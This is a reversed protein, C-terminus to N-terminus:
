EPYGKALTLGTTWTKSSFDLNHNISVILNSFVQSPTGPVTVSGFTDYIQITANGPIEVQGTLFYRKSSGKYKNAMDELDDPSVFGPPGGSMAKSWPFYPVTDYDGTKYTYPLLPVNSIDTQAGGGVRRLGFLVIENRIDEFDPSMSMSMVKTNPYSSSWDTPSSVIPLATDEDIKYFYIKSYAGTSSTSFSGSPKIIYTLLYDECVRELVERVPTGPPFNYIPSALDETYRLKDSSTLSCDTMDKTIGVKDVIYDLAADVRYNDLYPADFLVIDDLKKELGVLNITWKGGDPGDTESVGMALGSFIVGDVTGNGGEAYITISGVSNVTAGSDGGIGQLIKADQGALGFKDVIIQGTMGEETQSINISLIYPEWNAVTAAVVDGPTSGYYASNVDGPKATGAIWGLKFNGNLNYPDDALKEKVRFYTGFIEGTSRCHLAADVDSISNSAVLWSFKWYRNDGLDPPPVVPEDVEAATRATPDGVDYIGFTSQTNKTYIIYNKYEFLNAVGGKDSGVFFEDFKFKSLFFCPLYAINARCARVRATIPGTLMSLDTPFPAVVVDDADGESSGDYPIFPDSYAPDFIGADKDYPIYISAANAVAKDWQFAASVIAGNWVPYVLLVYPKKNKLESVQPPFEGSSSVPMPAEKSNSKYTVLLGSEKLEILLSDPDSGFKLKVNWISKGVDATSVRAPKATTVDIMFCCAGYGVLSTGNTYDATIPTETGDYTPPPFTTKDELELDMYTDINNDEVGITSVYTKNNGGITINKDLDGPLSGKAVKTVEWNFLDYTGYKSMLATRNYVGNSCLKQTPIFIRPMLSNNPTIFGSAAKDMNEDWVQQSVLHPKSIVDSCPYFFFAREQKLGDGTDKYPDYTAYQGEQYIFFRSESYVIRSYIYRYVSSPLDFTITQTSIQVSPNSM